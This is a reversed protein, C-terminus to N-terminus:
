YYKRFNNMKILSFKLVQISVQKPCVDCKYPKEGAHKQMHDSLLKEVTFRKGCQDCKFPKEGSHFSKIHQTLYCNKSFTKDCEECTVLKEASQSGDESDIFELRKSNLKNTEKKEAKISTKKKLSLKKKDTQTLNNNDERSLLPQQQILAGEPFQNHHNNHIWQQHNEAPSLFPRHPVFAPENFNEFPMLSNQYAGYPPLNFSRNQTSEESHHLEGINLIQLENPSNSFENTGYSLHSFYSAMENSLQQQFKDNESHSSVGNFNNLMEQSQWTSNRSLLHTSSQDSDVEQKIKSESFESNSSNIASHPVYSSIDCINKEPLESAYVYNQDNEIFTEFKNPFIIDPVPALEIPAFNNIDNRFFFRDALALSTSSM